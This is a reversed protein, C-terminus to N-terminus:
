AATGTPLVEDIIHESDDTADIQRECNTEPVMTYFVGMCIAISVPVVMFAAQYPAITNPMYGSVPAYYELIYGSIPTLIGTSCVLIMNNLAIATAMSDERNLDNILGFTIPQAASSTGIAVLMINVVWSNSPQFIILFLSAALGMGLLVMTPRIREKMHNSVWGAAPSAIAMSIWVWMLQQASQDDSQAQILSLFPVGWSEAIIGVAAWSGFAAFGVCWNVHNKAVHCLISTIDRNVESKDEDITEPSDKLIFFFLGTLIIGFIGAYYLSIRWGITQIMMRIPKGALVAGICGMIQVCGTILAQKEPPFWRASLALPGIFAFASAAGIALRSISALIFQDTAQLCLTSIACVCVAATLCARAGFRDCLLGAPLQMLAYAYFFCAILQGLQGPGVSFASMLESTIVTPMVRLFFEYLYFSASLFVIIYATLTGLKPNDTSEM